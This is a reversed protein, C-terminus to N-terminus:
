SAPPPRPVYLEGSEAGLRPQPYNPLSVETIALSRMLDLAKNLPSSRVSFRSDTPSDPTPTEQRRRSSVSKSLESRSDPLIDPAEGAALEMLASLGAPELCGDESRGAQEPHLALATIPAAFGELIWDGRIDAVYNLNGFSIQHGPTYSNIQELHGISNAHLVFGGFVFIHGPLFTEGSVIDKNSISRAMSGEVSSM